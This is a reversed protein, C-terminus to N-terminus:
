QLVQKNLGVQKLIAEQKSQEPMKTEGEVKIKCDLSGPKYAGINSNQRENNIDRNILIDDQKTSM